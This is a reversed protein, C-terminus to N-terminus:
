LASFFTDVLTTRFARYADIAADETPRMPYTRNSLLMLAAEQQPDIVIITGTFGTKGFARASTHSGMRSVDGVEWGFGQQAAQVEPSERHEILHAACTLLDDISSFLGAHGASRRARAFIRASEDHPLGQITEGGVIETPACQKRDPFFTTERMQLPEFIEHHALTAIQEGGVRELIIGLVFAPLNTYESAGPPGDFGRELAHTRVEEFTAYQLTSMQVGKVRYRLLDEITAGFDQTLEPVFKKVPDHLTLKGEAIFRAALMAIPISKTISALDYIPYTEGHRSIHREGQRYTGVVCGPFVRESLAKDALVALNDM